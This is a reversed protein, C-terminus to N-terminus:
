CLPLCITKFGDLRTLDVVNEVMGSNCNRELHLAFRSGTHPTSMLASLEGPISFM